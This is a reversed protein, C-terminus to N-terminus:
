LYVVIWSILSAAPVFLAQALITGALRSCMLLAFIKGLRHKEREDHLARETLLAMQPDILITLLITAVGNIVGSSMSAAVAFEPQLVSAYLAALVGVTYIGSVLCNLVLLRKPIGMLRLSKLMSFRPKRLHHGAHRVKTITVSSILRPVSGTVELHTIIRKALRVASPFLFLALLTGVSASGIFIRFVLEINFDNYAIAHDIMKGTLPAQILNSTRSILVIIGTLSIAVVIKGVRVGALRFAYSLTEVLHILMTLGAILIIKDFM